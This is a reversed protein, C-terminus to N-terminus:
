AAMEVSWRVYLRVALVGERLAMALKTSGSYIYQNSFPMHKFYEVMAAGYVAVDSKITKGGPEEHKSGQLEVRRGDLRTDGAQEIGKFEL